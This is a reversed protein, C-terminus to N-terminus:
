MIWQNGLAEESYFLKMASCSAERVQEGGKVGDVYQGSARLTSVVEHPENAAEPRGRDRAGRAFGGRTKPLRRSRTGIGFAHTLLSANMHPILTGCVNSQERRGM